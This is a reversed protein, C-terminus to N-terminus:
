IRGGNAVRLTAQLRNVVARGLALQARVAAEPTTYRRQEQDSWLMAGSGSHNDPGDARLCSYRTRSYSTSAYVTLPGRGVRWHWGLNEHVYVRWGPGLSKTLRAKLAEAAKVAAQYADWTCFGTRGGCAPSCYIAGRRTPTWDRDAARKGNHTKTTRKAM